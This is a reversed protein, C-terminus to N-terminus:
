SPDAYMGNTKIKKDGVVALEDMRWSIRGSNRIAPMEAKLAGAVEGPINMMTNIGQDSRENEIIRYISNHGAFNHDFTTEDEVWLLIFAACTIGISLGAINLFGFARRKWLGRFATKLSHRLM